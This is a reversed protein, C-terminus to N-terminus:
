TKVFRRLFARRSSERQGTAPSNAPDESAGGNLLADLAATAAAQAAIQSAFRSPPSFLPCYQYAPLDADPEYDAIFEIPGIPFTVHCRDGPRRDSWLSGGGPLLLLGIVWPTIVAGIWDGTASSTTGALSEGTSGHRRFGIAEVSLAPNVFPLDRMSTTWLRLYKAEVRRAPDEAIPRAPPPQAAEFARRRIM